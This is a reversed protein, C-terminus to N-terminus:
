RTLVLKISKSFGGATLRAIYVGSSLGTGDFKLNYTQPAMIGDLLTAVEQGLVNYVKLTVYGAKPISFSIMTSPNFPNPYNQQLQFEAPQSGKNDVATVLRGANLAEDL